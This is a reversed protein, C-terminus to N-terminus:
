PIVNSFTSRLAVRMIRTEYVAHTNLPTARGSAAPSNHPRHEVQIKLHLSPPACTSRPQVIFLEAENLHKLNLVAPRYRVTLLAWVISSM